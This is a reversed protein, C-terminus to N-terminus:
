ITEFRDYELPGTGIYKVKYYKKLVGIAERRTKMKVMDPRTSSYRYFKGDKGLFNMEGVCWHLMGDSQFVDFIM